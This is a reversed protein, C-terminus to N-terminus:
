DAKSWFEVADALMKDTIRPSYTKAYTHVGWEPYEKCFVCGEMKGDCEQSNDKMNDKM